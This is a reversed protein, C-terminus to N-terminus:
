INYLLLCIHKMPRCHQFVCGNIITYYINASGIHAVNPMRKITFIIFTLQKKQM